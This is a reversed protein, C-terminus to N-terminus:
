FVGCGAFLVGEGCVSVEGGSGMWLALGEKDWWIMWDCKVKAVMPVSEKAEKREKIFFAVGFLVFEVDLAFVGFSAGGDLGEVSFGDFGWYGAM